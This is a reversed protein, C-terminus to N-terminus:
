DLEMADGTKHDHLLGQRMTNRAMRTISCEGVVVGVSSFNLHSGLGFSDIILPEPTEVPFIYMDSPM